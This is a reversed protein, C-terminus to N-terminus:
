KEETFFHLCEEELQKLEEIPLDNKHLAVSFIKLQFINKRSTSPQINQEAVELWNIAQKLNGAKYCCRIINVLSLMKDDNEKNEYSKIYHQLSLKYDNINEYCNGLNNDIISYHYDKEPLLPIIEQAVKYSHFAEDEVQNYYPLLAELEESPKADFEEEDSEFGESSTVGSLMEGLAEMCREHEADIDDLKCPNYQLEMPFYMPCRTWNTFRSKSIYM